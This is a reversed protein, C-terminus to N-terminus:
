NSVPLGIHILVLITAIALWWDGVDGVQNLDYTKEVVTDMGQTAFYKRERWEDTCNRYRACM